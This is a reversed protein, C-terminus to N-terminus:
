KYLFHILKILFFSSLWRYFVPLSGIASFPTFALLLIVAILLYSFRRLWWTDSSFLVIVPIFIIPWACLELYIDQYFFHLAWCFELCWCNHRLHYPSYWRQPFIDWQWTLHLVLCFFYRLLQFESLFCRELSTRGLVLYPAKILGDTM